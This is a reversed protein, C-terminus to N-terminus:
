RTAALIAILALILALPLYYRGELRGLGLGIRAGLRALLVGLGRVGEELWVLSLWWIPSPPSPILSPPPSDPRSALLSLATPLLAGTPTAGSGAWLAVLRGIVALVLAALGLLLAPLLLGGGAMGTWPMSAASTGGAVSAMREVQPLWLGPALGGLLLAAAGALASYRAAYLSFRSAPQGSQTAIDSYRVGFHLATGCAALVAAGLLSLAGVGLAL